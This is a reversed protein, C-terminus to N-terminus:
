LAVLDIFDNLSDSLSLTKFLVDWVNVLVHVLELHKLILTTFLNIIKSFDM